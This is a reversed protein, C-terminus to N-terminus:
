GGLMTTWTGYSFYASWGRLTQNLRDQVDERGPQQAGSPKGGEGQYTGGGEEVPKGGFVLPM